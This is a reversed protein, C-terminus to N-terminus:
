LKSKSSLEFFEDNSILKFYKNGNYWRVVYFNGSVTEVVDRIDGDYLLIFNNVIKM